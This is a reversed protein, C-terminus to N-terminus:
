ADSGTASKERLPEKGALLKTKTEIIRGLQKRFAAGDEPFARVDLLDFQQHLKEIDNWEGVTLGLNVVSQELAYRFTRDETAAGAPLLGFLQQLCLYVSLDIKRSNATLLKELTAQLRGAISDGTAKGIWEKHQRRAEIAHKALKNLPFPSATKDSAARPQPSQAETKPLNWHITSQILPLADQGISQMLSTNGGGTHQSQVPSLALERNLRDFDAALSTSPPRKQAPEPHFKVFTKTSVEDNFRVKKKDRKIDSEPKRKLSPETMPARSLPPQLNRTSSDTDIESFEQWEIGDFIDAVDNRPSGLTELAKKASGLKESVQQTTKRPSAGKVPTSPSTDTMAAPIQLPPVKRPPLPAPRSPDPLPKRYPSVIAPSKIAASENKRISKVRPSKETPSIAPPHARLDSTGDADSSPGALPLPTNRVSADIFAMELERARGTKARPSTPTRNALRPTGSAAEERKRPTQKLEEADNNSSKIDKSKAAANLM